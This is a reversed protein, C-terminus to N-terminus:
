DFLRLYRQCNDRVAGNFVGSSVALWDAGVSVLAAGNEPLIGGIAVIPLHLTKKAATLTSLQACPADPKTTSPFFCGFALYSAGQAAALHARQLDDYCSVGIIATAGLVRRAEAIDGDDRGLHVGDAALAKALSIDDNVIFPIRYRRCLTRLAPALAPSPRARKDRYQLMGAGAQLATDVADIVVADPELGIQTLIYLGRAPIIM